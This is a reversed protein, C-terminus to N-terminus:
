READLSAERDGEAGCKPCPPLSAKWGARRFLDPCRLEFCTAHVPEDADVNLLLTPAHTGAKARGLEDPTPTYGLRSLFTNTRLLRVMGAPADNATVTFHSSFLTTTEPGPIPAGPSGPPAVASGTDAKNAVTVFDWSGSTEHAAALCALWVSIETCQAPHLTMESLAHEVIRVGGFEHAWHGNDGFIAMIFAEGVRISILDVDAFASVSL